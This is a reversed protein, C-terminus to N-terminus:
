LDGGVPRTVATVTDPNLAFLESLADAYSVAGERDALEKVRVTPQHLLKDAVRRVTKLVEAHTAEDMEPLRSELREIEASVVESAMSRLAVVTPTVKERRRSSTFAAIEEEVIRRADALHRAGDTDRLAEALSALDVLTVGPLTGVEPAVDRPLALDIVVLDGAEPGRAAAVMQEDLLIASSGVCSIVVDAGRLETSLDALDAARASYDGALREANARTRNVVVVDAAGQRTATAVAVSAMSGAGVVVVRRDRVGAEGLAHELSASVLSPGASDVGTESHARKGVRLAQQFLGNLSSGVHQREQATQLAIRAQGLIQGEGPVLSDLGTVVSFLHSVAGDDYHVYLHPLLSEMPDEARELVLRSLAEVTGHFRDVETYIELRNCTAIVAVEHVNDHQAATDLLDDLAGRDLVLQELLAVPATKHSIGVVLVSM